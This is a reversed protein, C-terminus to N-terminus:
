YCYQKIIEITGEVDERGYRFDLPVTLLRRSLDLAAEDGSNFESPGQRWNVAPYVNNEILAALLGDRVDQGECLLVGGLPVADAPWDTFLPRVPSSKEKGLEKIFLEINEKKRSRLENARISHLINKTFASAAGNQKEFLKEGETQLRRFEDKKLTAGQLYASKLIMAELKYWAGQLPGEEAAPLEKAPPSWLLAGDPVPLTKRLSSFAYDGTANLAWKSFPDHTHDEIFVVGPCKNIFDEWGSREKVGFLNLVLVLDNESPNLTNWEPSDEGPLDRYWKINFAGSLSSATEMCFFSPLHLTPRQSTKFVTESLANLAGRGSSFLVYDEPFLDAGPKETLLWSPDWHFESGMEWRDQVTKMFERQL